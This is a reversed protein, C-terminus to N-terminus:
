KEIVYLTNPPCDEVCDSVVLSEFSKMASKKVHEIEDCLSLSFGLESVFASGLLLKVIKTIELIRDQLLPPFQKQFDSQSEDEPDYDDENLLITAMNSDSSDSIVFQVIDDRSMLSKPYNYLSLESEFKFGFATKKQIDSELSLLESKQLSNIYGIVTESM